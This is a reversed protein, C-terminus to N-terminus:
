DRERVAARSSDLTPASAQLLKAMDEAHKAEMAKSKKQLDTLEKLLASVKARSTAKEGEAIQREQM